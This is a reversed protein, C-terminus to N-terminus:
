DPPGEVVIGDAALRDLVGNKRLLQGISVVVLTYNGNGLSAEIASVTDDTARKDLAFVIPSIELLCGYVHPETYNVKIGGVDGIAWADAAPGAHKAGFEVDNVAADVCKRTTAPPLQLVAEVSPMADYTAIRQVDAGQRRAVREITDVPENGTMNESKLFDSELRIAAIAPTDTAYRDADQHIMTRAAAFRPALDPGLVGDLTEGDPLSLLSRKTLLFWAAQFIGTKAVPPLFVHWNGDLLKSLHDTNWQYENTVPTVIGLIWVDSQGKRAHWFAPGKAQATVTVTEISWNEPQQPATAQQALVSRSAALFMSGITAAVLLARVALSVFKTM